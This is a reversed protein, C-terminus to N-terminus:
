GRRYAAPTTGTWRRFARHFAAPESFGLVFAIEQLSLSQQNRVLHLSLDRRAQDVLQQYRAGARLLRRQLTRPTLALERAVAALSTDGARLARAIARRVDGTADEPPLSQLRANAFTELLSALHPDGHEIPASLLTAPFCLALDRAEWRVPAGFFLTHGDPTREDPPSPRRYPLLVETVRFERVYRRGYAFVVAVVFDCMQPSPVGSSAAAVFRLVANAGAVSLEYRGADSLLRFYRQARELAAGWTGSSAALFSFLGFSHAQVGEAAHLAFLPDGAAVAADDWM